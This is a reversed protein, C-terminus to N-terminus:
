YKVEIAWLKKIKSLMAAEFRRYGDVIRYKNKTVERIVIPPITEPADLWAAPLDEHREELEIDKGRQIQSTPLFILRWKAVDRPVSKLCDQLSERAMEESPEAYTPNSRKSKM